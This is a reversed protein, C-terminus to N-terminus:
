YYSNVYLEMKSHGQIQQKGQRTYIEMIITLM